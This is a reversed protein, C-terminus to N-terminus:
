SSQSEAMVGAPLNKWVHSLFDWLLPSPMTESFTRLVASSNSQCLVWPSDLSDQKYKKIKQDKEKERVRPAKGQAM